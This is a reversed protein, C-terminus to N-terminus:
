VEGSRKDCESWNRQSYEDSLSTQYLLHSVIEKVEEQDLICDERYEAPAGCEYYEFFEKGVEGKTWVKEDTSHIVFMCSMFNDDSFIPFISVIEEQEETYLSIDIDNSDDIYAEFTNIFDNIFKISIEEVGIYM